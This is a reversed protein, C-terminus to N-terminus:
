TSKPLYVPFSILISPTSCRMILSSSIRPIMSFHNFSSKAIAAFSMLCPAFALSFIIFPTPMRASATFTVKPGFPRFTRRSFDQPEGPILLSPTVTALSISSSSLNSFMPACIALLHSGPCGVDGPVAGGRRCDQCLGDITLPNLKQGRTAVGHGDLQFANGQFVQTCGFANRYVLIVCRDNHITTAIALRNLTPDLLNFNIGLWYDNRCEM